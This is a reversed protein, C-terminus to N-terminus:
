GDFAGTAIVRGKNDGAPEPVKAGVLAVRERKHEIM